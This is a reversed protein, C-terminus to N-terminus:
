PHLWGARVAAKTRLRDAAAHRAAVGDSAVCRSIAGFSIAGATATALPRSMMLLRWPDSM